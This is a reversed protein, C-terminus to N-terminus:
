TVCGSTYAAIVIVVLIVVVVVVAFKNLSPSGHKGKLVPLSPSLLKLFFNARRALIVLPVNSCVEDGEAAEEDKEEEQEEGEVDDTDQDTIFIFWCKKAKQACLYLM